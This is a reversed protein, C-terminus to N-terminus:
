DVSQSLNSGRIALTTNGTGVSIVTSNNSAFTAGGSVARININVQRGPVMSSVNVNVRRTGGVLISNFQQFTVTPTTVSFPVGNSTPVSQSSPPFENPMHIPASIFPNSGYGNSIVTVTRTGDAASNDITFRCRIETDSSNLITISIGGGTVNVAPRTGFGTGTIVVETQTGVEWSLPNIGTINPTPDGIIFDESNSTGFQNTLTLGRLGTAATLATSFQLNVQNPGVYVPTVSAGSGSLQAQTTGLMNSGYLAIY